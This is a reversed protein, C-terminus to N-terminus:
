KIVLTQQYKDVKFETGIEIEQSTTKINSSGQKTKVQQVRRNAPKPSIQQNKSFSKQYIQKRHFEKLNKQKNCKLCNKKERDSLM